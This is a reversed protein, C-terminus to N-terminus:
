YVPLLVAAVFLLVCWLLVWYLLEGREVSEGKSAWLFYNVGGFFTAVVCFPRAKDRIWKAITPVLYTPDYVETPFRIPTTDGEKLFVSRTDTIRPSLDARIIIAPGHRAVIDAETHVLLNPGLRNAEALLLTSEPHQLNEFQLPLNANFAYSTELGHYNCTAAKKMYPFISTEWRSAIPYFDDSGDQYIMIALGLQKFNSICQTRPSMVGHGFTSFPQAYITLATVFLAIRKARYFAIGDPAKKRLLLVIAWVVIIVLLSILFHLITKTDSTM